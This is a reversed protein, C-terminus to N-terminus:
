RVGLSNYLAILSAVHAEISFQRVAWERGRASLRRRKEEDRLLEVLV